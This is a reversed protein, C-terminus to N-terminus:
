RAIEPNAGGCGQYGSDPFDTNLTMPRYSTLKIGVFIMENKM